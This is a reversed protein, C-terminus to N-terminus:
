GGVRLKEGDASSGGDAGFGVRGLSGRQMRQRERVEGDRPRAGSGRERAGEGGRRGGGGEGM